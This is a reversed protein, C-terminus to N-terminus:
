ELYELAEDVSLRKLPSKKLMGALLSLLSDGSDEERFLEVLDESVGNTGSKEDLVARQYRLLEFNHAELARRFELLRAEGALSPCLASVGIMAASFVDFKRPAVVSLRTEPAAFLPDLTHIGASWFLGGVQCASGFDILRLGNTGGGASADGGGGGEVVLVNGPKVDRHVVGCAHVERLATLVERLVRRSLARQPGGGAAHSVRLAACLAATPRARLFHALTCGAGERRWVLFAQSDRVYDGLFEPWPAPVPPPAPVPHIDTTAARPAAAAKLRRNVRREVSFLARATRSDRARKLVVPANTPSLTGFFVDGFSGSAVPKALDADIVLTNLQEIVCRPPAPRRRAAPSTLGPSAPLPVSPAFAPPLSLNPTTTM